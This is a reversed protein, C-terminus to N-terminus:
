RTHHPIALERDSGDSLADLTLRYPCAFLVSLPLTRNRHLELQHRYKYIHADADCILKPSLLLHPPSSLLLGQDVSQPAAWPVYPRDSRYARSVVSDFLLSSSHVQCSHSAITFLRSSPRTLTNLTTGNRVRPSPSGPHRGRRQRVLGKAM